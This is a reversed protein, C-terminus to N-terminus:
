IIKQKRMNDIDHASIGLLDRMVEYTANGLPPGLNTIRGPTESLTPLVGPVVVNGLGDAEVRALNGRAQFHEDEFIDAISNVKGVPVQKDLCRRMVEERSLSGVWETVIQNVLDRAALRKGQEGYLNASSLEPKEMAESLREFMKDTTCAIAVWKDDKTSFHGHPVAVFSGAGERARVKGFMEYAGAIEDLQRFVAEYIAIDIVQGQGTRDRHRLALMIGIAGYLSSMYDGLPATGPVVPTEGPFGALYSLGGFAHAIHAFGSRHRYPGTQGYGSVRLMVLGPNAASLEKWGLGWQEMTGPRFNEIVVDSKAVLKLFVQVGEAQRLDITVSKRNRGETLWALTADHRGTPTGFRRMPDGAIPHEIKLVEAGFEGLISAAHPGALFTGVDLVRVGTM